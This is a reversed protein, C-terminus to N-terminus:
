AAIAENDFAGVHHRLVAHNTGPYKAIDIHDFRFPTNNELEDAHQILWSMALPEMVERPMNEAFESGEIISLGIFVLQGKDKAVVAMTGIGPAEFNSDLITYGKRKCCSVAVKTGCEILNMSNTSM